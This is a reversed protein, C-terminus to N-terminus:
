RESCRLTTNGRGLLVLGGAEAHTDFGEPIPEERSIILWLNEQPIAGNGYVRVPRDLEIQLLLDVNNLRASVLGPRSDHGMIRALARVAPWHRHAARAKPLDVALWFGLAVALHAAATVSFFRTRASLFRALAQWLCLWLLPLLPTFFRTGQDYPWVMYLAAYLPFTWALVDCASRVLRAWGVAFVMAIPLFILMNLTLWSGREDYAKWMGPVVLRGIESLRLRAGEVLQEVPTQDPDLVQNLYTQSGRPEAMARDHVIFAALVLVAPMGVALPVGVARKWSLEGRRTWPFRALAFGGAFLIGAPRILALFAMLLTALIWQCLARRLSAGVRPNNTSNLLNVLWIMVAMFAVESLTRRYVDWLSVNVATLATVLLAGQGALRSAWLYVGWLFVGMFLWQALSLLWFPAPGNLFCPSILLPYGPSYYVQPRGCNALLHNQGLNRAISLYGAADSTPYWVPSIQVAFLLLLGGLLWATRTASRDPSSTYFADMRLHTYGMSM